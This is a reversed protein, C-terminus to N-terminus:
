ALWTFVKFFSYILLVFGIFAVLPLVIAAVIHTEIEDLKEEDQGVDTCPEAPRKVEM